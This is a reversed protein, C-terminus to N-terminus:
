RRGVPDSTNEYKPVAVFGPDLGDGDFKTIGHPYTFGTHTTDAARDHMDAVLDATRNEDYVMTGAGVHLRGTTPGRRPDKQSGDFLRSFTSMHRTGPIKVGKIAECPNGAKAASRQKLCKYNLADCVVFQPANAPLYDRAIQRETAVSQNLNPDAVQWQTQVSRRTDICAQYPHHISLYAKARIGDGRDGHADKCMLCAACTDNLTGTVAACDVLLDDPCQHQVNTNDCWKYWQCCNDETVAAENGTHNGLIRV